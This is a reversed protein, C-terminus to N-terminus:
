EDGVVFVCYVVGFVCWWLVDFLVELLMGFLMLVLIVM